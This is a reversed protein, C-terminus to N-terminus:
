DEAKYELLEEQVEINPEDLNDEMRVVVEFDEVAEIPIIRIVAFMKAKLNTPRREIIFDKIGELGQMRELTLKIRNSFNLWLTDSNPDFM